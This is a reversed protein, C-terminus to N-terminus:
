DLAFHLLVERGTAWVGAEMERRMVPETESNAVANDDVLERKVAEM